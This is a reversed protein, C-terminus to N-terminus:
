GLGCGELLVTQLHESNDLSLSIIILTFTEQDSPECAYSWLRSSGHHSLLLYGQWFRTSPSLSWSKIRGSSYPEIWITGYPDLQAYLSTLRSHNTWPQPWPLFLWQPWVTQVSKPWSIRRFFAPHHTSLCRSGTQTTDSTKISGLISRLGASALIWIWSSSLRSHWTSWPPRKLPDLVDIPSNGLKHATSSRYGDITSPQLKRDQFMYLFFDAICKIPSARFDVRNSPVM